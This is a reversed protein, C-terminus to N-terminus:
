YAASNMCNRLSFEQQLQEKNIDPLRRSLHFWVSAATNRGKDKIVVEKRRRGTSRQTLM